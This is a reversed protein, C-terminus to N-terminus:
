NAAGNPLLVYEVRERLETARLLDARKEPGALALRLERARMTSLVSLVILADEATM